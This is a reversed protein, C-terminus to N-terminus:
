PHEARRRVWAGTPTPPEGRVVGITLAADDWLENARLHAVLRGLALDLESATARTAVVAHLAARRPRALERFLAHEGLARFRDRLLTPDWAKHAVVFPDDARFLWPDTRAISDFPRLDVAPRAVGELKEGQLEELPGFGEIEFSSADALAAEPAPEVWRAGENMFRRFSPWRQAADPALLEAHDPGRCFLDLEVHPRDSATARPSIRPHALAVKRPRSADASAVRFTLTARRGLSKDLEVIEIRASGFGFATPPTGSSPFGDYLTTERAGAKCRVTLRAAPPPASEGELPIAAAEVDLWSPAAPLELDCELLAGDDAAIARRVDGCVEIAGIESAALPRGDRRWSALDLLRVIPRDGGEEGGRPACGALAFSLALASSRRKM